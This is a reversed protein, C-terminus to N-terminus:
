LITETFNGGAAIEFVESLKAKNDVLIFIITVPITLSALLTNM